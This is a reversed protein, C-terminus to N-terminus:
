KSRQQQQQRQQYDASRLNMKDDDIVVVDVVVVTVDGETLLHVSFLSLRWSQMLHLLQWLDEWPRTLRDSLDFPKPDFCLLDAGVNPTQEAAQSQDM